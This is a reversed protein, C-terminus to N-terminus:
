RPLDQEESAQRGGLGRAAQTRRDSGEGPARIRQRKQQTQGIAEDDGGAPQAALPTRPAPQSLPTMTISALFSRAFSTSRAFALKSLVKTRSSGASGTSTFM